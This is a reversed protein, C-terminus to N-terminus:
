KSVRIKAISIEIKVPANVSRLLHYQVRLPTRRSRCLLTYHLSLYEKSGVLSLPGIQMPQCQVIVIIAINNTTHRTIALYYHSKSAINAIKMLTFLGLLTKFYEDYDLNSIEKPHPITSLLFRSLFLHRYFM